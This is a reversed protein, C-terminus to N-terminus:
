ADFFPTRLAGKRERLCLSRCAVERPRDTIRILTIDRIDPLISAMMSFVYCASRLARRYQQHRRPFSSAVRPIATVRRSSRSTYQGAGILLCCASCLRIRLVKAISIPYPFAGISKLVHCHEPRVLGSASAYPEVVLFDFVSGM